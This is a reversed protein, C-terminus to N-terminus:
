EELEDSIFKFLGMGDESRKGLYHLLLLLLQAFNFFFAMGLGVIFRLIGFVTITYHSSSLAILLWLSSLIRIDCKKLAMNPLLLGGPIKADWALYFFFGSLQGLYSVDQNFEKFYIPVFRWYQVL